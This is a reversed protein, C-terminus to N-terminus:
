ENKKEVLIQRRCHTAEKQRLLAKNYNNKWKPSTEKETQILSHQLESNINHFKGIAYDGSNNPTVKMLASNHKVKRGTVTMQMARGFDNNSNTQGLAAMFDLRATGCTSLGYSATAHLSESISNNADLWMTATLEIKSVRAM